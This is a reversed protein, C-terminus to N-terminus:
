LAIELPVRFAPLAGSGSTQFVYNLDIVSDAALHSGIVNLAEDLMKLLVKQVKVDDADGTILYLDARLSGHWGLTQVDVATPVLVSGPVRAQARDLACPVGSALLDAALGQLTPVIQPVLM